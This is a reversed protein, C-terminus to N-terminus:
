GARVCNTKHLQADDDDNVLLSLWDCEHSAIFLLSASSQGSIQNKKIATCSMVGVGEGAPAAWGWFTDFTEM